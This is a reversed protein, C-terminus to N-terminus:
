SPNLDLLETPNGFNDEEIICTGNNRYYLTVSCVVGVFRYKPTVHGRCNNAGLQIIQLLESYNVIHVWMSIFPVVCCAAGM